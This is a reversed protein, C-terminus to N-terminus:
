DSQPIISVMTKSRGHELSLLFASCMPESFSNMFSTLLCIFTRGVDGNRRGKIQPMHRQAHAM